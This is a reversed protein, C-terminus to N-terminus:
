LSIISNVAVVVSCACPSAVDAGDLYCAAVHCVNLSFNAKTTEESRKGGGHRWEM